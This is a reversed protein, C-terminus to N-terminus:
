SSAAIGDGQRLIIRESTCNVSELLLAFLTLVQRIINRVARATEVTPWFKVIIELPAIWAFRRM